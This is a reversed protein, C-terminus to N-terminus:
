RPRWRYSGSVPRAPRAALLVQAFYGDVGEREILYRDGVPTLVVPEDWPPEWRMADPSTLDDLANDILELVDIM